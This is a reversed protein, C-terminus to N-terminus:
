LDAELLTRRQEIRWMASLFMGLTTLILIGGLRMVGFAFPGYAGISADYYFCSLIVRDITTGVKGDGAELLALRLDRAIYTLGYLYRSITGDPSLFFVAATHAYQDLKPDYKVEYGLSDALANVQDGAGVAFTWDVDGKGLQELYTQRKDRGLEWGERPDISVTVMRFEDGPKWGMGRLGVLLANLQLNCLMKCRYYNLTLLVPKDDDGLLDRLTREAGTHDTFVLSTDVKQGLREQIEVGELGAPLLEEGVAVGAFATVFVAALAAHLLRNV